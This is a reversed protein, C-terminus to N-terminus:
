EIQLQKLLKKFESKNKIDGKYICESEGYNLSGEISRSCTEDFFRHVYIKHYKNDFRDIHLTAKLFYPYEGPLDELLYDYYGVWQNKLTKRFGLSEIDEQDLYKIKVKELEFEKCINITQLDDTFIYPDIFINDKIEFGDFYHLKINNYIEEIDPTYYKSEM